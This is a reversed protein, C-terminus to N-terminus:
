VCPLVGGHGSRLGTPSGRRVRRDPGRGAEAMMRVVKKAKQVKDPFYSPDGIVMKSKAVVEGSKVGTAVGNEDYMVTLDGDTGFIPSGDLDRNLM